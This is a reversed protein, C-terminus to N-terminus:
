YHLKIIFEWYMNLLIITGLLSGASTGYLSKINQIEWMGKKASNRLYGYFPFLVIGGGSLVIHEIKNEKEM